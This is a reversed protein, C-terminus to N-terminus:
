KAKKTGGIKRASRAVDGQADLYYLYGQERTFGCEQVKTAASGSADGKGRKMPSKWIDSGRLFYLYGAERKLGVKAVKEAM